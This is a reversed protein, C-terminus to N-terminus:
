GFTVSYLALGPSVAEIEMVQEAYADGNVVTYLKPRGIEISRWPGAGSRVRVPAADTAAAVLHVKAAFYRMRMRGAASRLVLPEEDREWQGELEYRNLSPGTQSFAYAGEGRRPYQAAEQPTPHLGGFYIEQSRVRSLDTDDEPRREIGGSFGLLGRIAQELELSHGEGERLMVIRGERDVLYFSPWARNGWARWTRYSNDQAVPYRIGLERAAGEVNQRVHEFQFEPTHVGVIQLGAPGYEADWRRLYSLTRLVYICSYTWFNVLSVRGRLTVPGIAAEINLWSTVDEFGPAERPTSRAFASTVSLM